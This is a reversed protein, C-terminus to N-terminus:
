SNRRNKYIVRIYNKKKNNKSNKKKVIENKIKVSKKTLIAFNLTCISKCGLLKLDFFLCFPLFNIWNLKFGCNSKPLQPRRKNLGM